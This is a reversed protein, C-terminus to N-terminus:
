AAQEEPVNKGEKAAKTENTQLVDMTDFGLVNNVYVEPLGAAECMVRFERIQNILDEIRLGLKQAEIQPTSVGSKIRLAAAQVDDVPNISRAVPGQWTCSLYAARNSNFESKSFGPIGDFYGHTVGSVVIAEYIPQCFHSGFWGQIVEIEPWVDNDASRESSFSSNRYDGTVTSSKTGPMASAEDRATSAILGDYGSININPSHMEVGGEKGRNICMGPAFHTLPNGDEDTLNDTSSPQKGFKTKGGALSYSLVICAQMASSKVVNFRLDSGHRNPMLAATFWTTGRLQEDDDKAYLHFVSAASYPSPETDLDTVTRALRRNNKLWYRYRMGETDLEIGRHFQHGDEIKGAVVDDALRQCDILQLTIPVPLSRSAQESGDIPKLCFLTEGSLMVTRLAIHQLGVLTEGGQGPKGRYDISGQCDQWLQKARSRFETFPSGDRQRAQSNPMLGQGIVKACLSRTIKKFHSDIRFRDWASNALLPFQASDIANESHNGRPQRPNKLLSGLAAFYGGKGGSIAQLQSMMARANRRHEAWQPSFLGVVRDITEAIM